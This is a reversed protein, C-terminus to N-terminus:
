EAKDQKQAMELREKELKNERETVKLRSYMDRRSEKTGHPREKGLRGWDTM